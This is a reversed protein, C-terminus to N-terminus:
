RNRSDQSAARTRYRNSECFVLAYPHKPNVLINMKLHNDICGLGLDLIILLTQTWTLM